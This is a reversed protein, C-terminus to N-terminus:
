RGPRPRSIGDIALRDEAVDAGRQTLTALFAGEIPQTTLLARERLWELEGHVLGQDVRYGLLDLQDRLLYEHATQQPGDRLVRLLHLRLAPRLADNLYSM